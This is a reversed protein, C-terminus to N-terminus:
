VFRIGDLQAVVAASYVRARTTTATLEVQALSEDIVGRIVLKCAPDQRLAVGDAGVTGIATNVDGRLLGACTEMGTLVFADDADFDIPAAFTVTNLTPNVATAVVGAAYEAGLARGGALTGAVAQAINAGVGGAALVATVHRSAANISDIVDNVPSTIAPGAGNALRITVTEIGTVPDTNSGAYIENHTADAPNVINVVHALGDNTRSTLVIDATGAGDGDITVTGTRGLTSRLTIIDGIHFGDAEDVPVAAAPGAGAVLTNGMPRLLGSVTDVCLPAGALTRGYDTGAVNAADMTRALAYESENDLFPDALFPFDNIVRTTPM